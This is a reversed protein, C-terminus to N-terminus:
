FEMSNSLGKNIIHYRILYLVTTKKMLKNRLKQLKRLLLKFKMLFFKSGEFCVHLTYFLLRTKHYVTNTYIFIRIDKLSYNLFAFHQSFSVKIIFLIKFIYDFPILFTNQVLKQVHHCLTFKKKLQPQEEGLMKKRNFNYTYCITYNFM